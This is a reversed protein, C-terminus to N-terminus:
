RNQTGGSGPVVASNSACSSRGARAFVKFSYRQGTQSTLWADPDGPDSRVLTWSADIVPAYADGEADTDVETVWLEDLLPMAQEYLQAGGIVWIEDDFAAAGHIGDALSHAISAGDAAFSADRTVVINQRDPLPRFREPFSEWTRRGMVVPMGTTARRFFAMDEPLKWLMGGDAGIARTSAQAWIARLTPKALSM